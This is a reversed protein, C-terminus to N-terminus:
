KQYLSVNNYIIELGRRLVVEDKAYNIRICQHKHNWEDDIGIFFDQGPVIYVDDAKLNNYLQESTISLNPFWLWMFFAGELKHLYVEIDVFITEFLNIAILAKKEYYPKIVDVCLELLENDRIMRTLLSPGVSSPSLVMIGNIRSLAEITEHEAIIIGTRLGPLGLKSLSMCLIMNANWKLSAKTYIAGPFPQGYANDIILPVGYEESILDLQNLEDDTIVNGTPNTPRSICIAGIISSDMVNILEEFNIKYKFQKDDLMCIEPKISVFMDESIGQDAYGIYEPAIPLLIKKHLGDEMEGGFLNFLSFFSSQSGNTIVINKEDLDWDYYNNLMLVLESIFEENGELFDKVM